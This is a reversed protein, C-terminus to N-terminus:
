CNVNDLPCYCIESHQDILKWAFPFCMRKQTEGLMEPYCIINLRKIILHGLNLFQAADFTQFQRVTGLVFSLYEFRLCM